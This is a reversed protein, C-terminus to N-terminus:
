LLLPLPLLQLLHELVPLLPLDQLLSQPPHLLLSQPPHLLM